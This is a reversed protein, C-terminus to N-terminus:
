QDELNHTQRAAPFPVRYFGEQQYHEVITSAIFVEDVDKLKASLAWLNNLYYVFLFLLGCLL